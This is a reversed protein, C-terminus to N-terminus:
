AEQPRNGPYIALPPRLPGRTWFRKEPQAQFVRRAGPLRVRRLKEGPLVRVAAPERYGTLAARLSNDGPRSEEFELVAAALTGPYAGASLAERPVPIAVQGRLVWGTPERNEIWAVTDTIHVRFQRTEFYIAM